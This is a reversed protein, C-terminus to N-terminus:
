APKWEGGVLGSHVTDSLKLGAAAKRLLGFLQEYEREELGVCLWSEHEVSLEALRQVMTRGDLTLHLSRVRRDAPDGRRRLLRRRELEDDLAVV